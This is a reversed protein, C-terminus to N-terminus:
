ATFVSCVRALAACASPIDWRSKDREGAANSLTRIELFPLQYLAAVHAVAAGEMAEAVPSFADELEAVRSPTGSISSLTLIPGTRSTIGRDTLRSRWQELLLPEVPYRGQRTPEQGPILDFPLSNHPFAGKEVGTHIDICCSAMAVDGPSFHGFGGAIGLNVMPTPLGNGLTLQRSLYVSIGHITNAIGPGTILLDAGGLAFHTPGAPGQEKGHPRGDLFSALEMATACVLLPRMM